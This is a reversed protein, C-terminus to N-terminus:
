TLTKVNPPLHLQEPLKIDLTDIKSQISDITKIAM